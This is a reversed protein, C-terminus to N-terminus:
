CQGTDVETTVDVDALFAEIESATVAYTVPRERSEAFVIGLLRGDDDFAGGGSMGRTVDANLELARRTAGDGGVVDEGTATIERNVEFDVSELRGERSLTM